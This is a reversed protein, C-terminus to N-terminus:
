LDGQDVIIFTSNFTSADKLLQRQYITERTEFKVTYIMRPFQNDPDVAEIYQPDTSFFMYLKRGNVWLTERAIAVRVIESLVAVIDDYRSQCVIELNWETILDNKRAYISGTSLLSDYETEAKNGRYIPKPAMGSIEIGHCVFEEEQVEYLVPLELYVNAATFNNVITPGDFMSYFYFNREDNDAIQHYETKGGGVIKITAYKQLYKNSTLYISKDGASATVTGILYSNLFREDRVTQLLTQMSSFIDVPLQDKVAVMYSIVLYEPDNTNSTIRIRSVSSIGTLSLTVPALHSYVPIMYDTMTGNFDISAIFNSPDFQNIGKNQTYVSYAHFVIENYSSVDIAPSIPLDVYAGSSNAKFRIILSATQDGAIYEPIENVGHITMKSADSTTWGTTTNLASILLKM